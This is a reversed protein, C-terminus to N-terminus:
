LSWRNLSCITVDYLRCRRVRLAQIPLKVGRGLGYVFSEGKDTYDEYSLEPPTEFKKRNPSYALLFPLHSAKHVGIPV